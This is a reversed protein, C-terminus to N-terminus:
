VEVGLAERVEKQADEPLQEMAQSYQVSLMQIAMGMLLPDTNFYLMAGKEEDAVVCLFDDSERVEGNVEIRVKNM